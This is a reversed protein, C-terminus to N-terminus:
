QRLDARRRRKVAIRVAGVLDAVLPMPDSPTLDSRLRRPVRVLERLLRRDVGRARAYRFAYPIPWWQKVGVDYQWVPDVDGDVAMRAALVPFNLGAQIALELGGWFRPNVEILTARGSGRDWRFEVDAPGHWALARLLAIAQERLQPEDTTETYVGMGGRPPLMHIRRMTMAARPEGRNFLACVDHLEGPAVEQVLRRGDFLLGAPPPEAEFARRLAAADAAWVLGRGGIGRRLKCICPYSIEAALAAVAESSEPAHTAPTEIGLRSALKLLELKDRAVDMSERSAVPLATLTELRARNSSAAIAGDESFPLLVHHPDRELQACLADVLPRDDAYADPVVLSRRTYRSRLVAARKRNVAVTVDFGARALARVGSLGRREFPVGNTLLLVKM